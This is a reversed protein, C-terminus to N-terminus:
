KSQLYKLSQLINKINITIIMKCFNAPNLTLKFNYIRDFYVESILEM